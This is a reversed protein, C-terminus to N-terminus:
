LQLKYQKLKEKNNAGHYLNEFNDSTEANNPSSHVSRTLDRPIVSDSDLDLMQLLHHCILKSNREKDRSAVMRKAAKMALLSHITIPAGQRQRHVKRHRRHIAQHINM